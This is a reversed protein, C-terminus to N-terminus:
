PEKRFFELEVFTKDWIDFLEDRNDITYLSLDIGKEIRQIQGHKIMKSTYLIICSCHRDQVAYRLIQRGGKQAKCVAKNFSDGFVKCEIITYIKSPADKDYVAIDIYDKSDGMDKELYLNEGRYGLNLLQNVCELVVFNEEKLFNCMTSRDKRINDSYTIEQNAFDVIINSGDTYHKTYKLNSSDSIKFDLSEILQIKGGGNTFKKNINDM